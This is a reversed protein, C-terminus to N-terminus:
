QLAASDGKRCSFNDFQTFHLKKSSVFFVHQFGLSGRFLCQKELAKRLCSSLHLSVSIFAKWENTWLWEYVGRGGRRSLEAYLGWFDLIPEPSVCHFACEQMWEWDILLLLSVIHATLFLINCLIALATILSCIRSFSLKTFTLVRPSFLLTPVAGWSVRSIAWERSPFVRM